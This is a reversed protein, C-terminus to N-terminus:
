SCRWNAAPLSEIKEIRKRAWKLWLFGIFTLVIVEVYYGDITTNCQGGAATCTALTEKTNCSFGDISCHKFTSYDLLWLSTFSPWNGGLNTITNLLTMYTGGITPDSVRAHFSLLAVYICYITIQHFTSSILVIIYYYSPFSKTVPDHVQKTWVLLLASLVGCIVRYPYAKIFINLPKPGKTYKSLYWPLIIQMPILPVSLFALTEKSIGAETLKLPTGSDTIAFAVKCTLLIIAFSQISKLKLIKILMLYTGLITEEEASQNTKEPKERKFIWVLSTTILFVISWFYLFGPLTIMGTDSPISRLYKNCVEPSELALFVLYGLSFGVTQGVTNCTSGYVINRKSLMTLAWGDVAIDQTACLFNLFFFVGALVYVSPSSIIAESSEVPPQGPQNNTADKPLPGLLDSIKYSLLFLTLGILYQIPILWSKRRGFKRSYVSDVLPAWLLKLSFPWTCLSFVAQQSYSVKYNQLILPISGSLGLPIGQLIYLVLLIFISGYDGTLPSNFNMLKSDSDGEESYILKQSDFKRSKESKSRRSVGKPVNNM